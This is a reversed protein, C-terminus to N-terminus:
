KRGLVSDKCTMTGPLVPWHVPTPGLNFRGEVSTDASLLARHFKWKWWYRGLALYLLACMMLAQDINTSKSYGGRPKKDQPMQEVGAGLGLFSSNGNSMWVTQCIKQTNHKTTPVWRNSLQFSNKFINPDAHLCVPVQRAPLRAEFWALKRWSMAGQSRARFSPLWTFRTAPLPPSPSHTLFVPISLLCPQVLLAGFVSCYHNYIADKQRGNSTSDLALHFIKGGQRIGVLRKGRMKWYLNETWDTAQRSCKNGM